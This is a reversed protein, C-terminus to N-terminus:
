CFPERPAPEMHFRCVAGQFLDQRPERFGHAGCERSEITRYSGLPDGVHNLRARAAPLWLMILPHLFRLGFAWIEQLRCLSLDM